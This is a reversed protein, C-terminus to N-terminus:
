SAPVLSCRSVQNSLSRQTRDLPMHVTQMNFHLGIACFKRFVKEFCSVCVCVCMICVSCLITSQFVRHTESWLCVYCCHWIYTGTVGNLRTKAKSEQFRNPNWAIPFLSHAFPHIFLSLFFFCSSCRFRSAIWVFTKRRSYQSEFFSLALSCSSLFLSVLFLRCRRTVWKKWVFDMWFSIRYFCEFNTIQIM